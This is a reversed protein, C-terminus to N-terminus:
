SSPQLVPKAIVRVKRSEVWRMMRATRTRSSTSKFVLVGNVWVRMRKDSYDSEIEVIDGVEARWDQTYCEIAFVTKHDHYEIGMNQNYVKGTLTYTHTHMM